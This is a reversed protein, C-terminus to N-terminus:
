IIYDDAATPKARRFYLTRRFCLMRHSCPARRSCLTRHSCPAAPFVTCSSFVTRHPCPTHHPRPARRSHPAALPLHRNWSRPQVAGKASRAADNQNRSETVVTFNVATVIAGRRAEGSGEETSVSDGRRDRATRTAEDGKSRSDPSRHRGGKRIPRARSRQRREM